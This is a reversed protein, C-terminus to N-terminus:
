FLLFKDKLWEPLWADSLWTNAPSVGESPEPPSDQVAKLKQPSCSGPEHDCQGMEAEGKGHCEGRQTQGRRNRELVSAVPNLAM